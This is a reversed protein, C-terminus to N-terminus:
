YFKKIAYGSNHEVYVQFFVRWLKSVLHGFYYELFVHPQTDNPTRILTWSQGCIKSLLILVYRLKKSGVTNQFCHEKVPNSNQWEDCQTLREKLRWWGPSIAKSIVFCESCGPISVIHTRKPCLVARSSQVWPRSLFIVWEMNILMFFQDLWWGSVGSLIYAFKSCM